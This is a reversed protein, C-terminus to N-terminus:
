AIGSFINSKSLVISTIVLLFIGAKIAGNKNIEAIKHKIIPDISKMEPNLCLNPADRRRKNIKGVVKIKWKKGKWDLATKIFAPNIPPNIRPKFLTSPLESLSRKLLWYILFDKLILCHSELKKRAALKIPYSYLGWSDAQPTSRLGLKLYKM